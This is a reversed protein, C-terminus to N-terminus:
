KKEEKKPITVARYATIAAIGKDLDSSSGDISALVALWAKETEATAAVVDKDAKDKVEKTAPPVATQRDERVKIAAKEKELLVIYAQLLAKVGDPYDAPKLATDIAKLKTESSLAKDRKEEVEEIKMQLPAENMARLQRIEQTVSLSKQVTSIQQLVQDPNADLIIVFVMDRGTAPSKFTLASDLAAGIPLVAKAAEVDVFGSAYSTQTLWTSSRSTVAYTRGDPGRFGYNDQTGARPGLLAYAGLAVGYAATLEQGTLAQAPTAPLMGLAGILIVLWRQTKL